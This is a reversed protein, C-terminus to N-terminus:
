SRMMTGQGRGDDGAQPAFPVLKIPDRVVRIAQVAGARTELHVTAFPAGGLDPLTVLVAPEGNLHRVACAITASGLRRLANAFRRAVARRGVSPRTAVPIVGGGDVVGWVDETCLAALEEVARTEIARAFREVVGADAVPDLDARQRARALAARARHLAAKTANPNSGLTEAVEALSRDCVDHLVLVARQRPSLAQLAVVVAFRLDERRVITTSPDSHDATPIAALELPDVLETVRRVRAHRRLHDLCVTTAIRFLWGEVAAADALQAAREIARAITEQTLDDADARHGTLRYCLAWLRSRCREIAGLLRATPIAATSEPM